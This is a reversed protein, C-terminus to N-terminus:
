LPPQGKWQITNLTQDCWGDGALASPDPHQAGSESVQTGECELVIAVNNRIAAVIAVRAAVSQGQLPTWNGAYIAGSGPTYGVEAAPISYQLTFQPFHASAIDRVIEDASRGGAAMGSIAPNFDGQSGHLGWAILSDTVRFPQLAKDYAVSFGYKASRYTTPYALAASKPPPPIPCNKKCLAAPQLAHAVAVLLGM